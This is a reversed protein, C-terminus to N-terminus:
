FTFCKKRPDSNEAQRQILM